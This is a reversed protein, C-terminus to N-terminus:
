DTTVKKNIPGLAATWRHGRKLRLDNIGIALRDGLARTFQPNAAGRDDFTIEVSGLRRSLGDCISPQM